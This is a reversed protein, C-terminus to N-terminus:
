LGRRRPHAAGPRGPQDFLQPQVAVVKRARAGALALAEDVTRSKALLGLNSRTVFVIKIEGRAQAALADAVTTWHSSVLEQEDHVGSQGEPARALYFCCRVTKQPHGAPDLQRLAGDLGAAPRLGEEAMITSFAM